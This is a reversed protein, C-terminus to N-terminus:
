QDNERERYSAKIALLQKLRAVNHRPSPISQGSLHPVIDSKRKLDYKFNPSTDIWQSWAHVQQSFDSYFNLWEFNYASEWWKGDSGGGEFALVLPDMPEGRIPMLSSAHVIAPMALLSGTGILIGRRSIM